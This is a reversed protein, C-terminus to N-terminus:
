RGAGTSVSNGFTPRPISVTATLGPCSRDEDNKYIEASELPPNSLYGAISSPGAVRVIGIVNIYILGSRKMKLNDVAIVL